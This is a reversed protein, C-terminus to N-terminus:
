IKSSKKKDAINTPLETPQVKQLKLLRAIYNQVWHVSGDLCMKGHIKSTAIIETDKCHPTPPFIEVKQFPGMRRAELKICQCRPEFRLSGETVALLALLGVVLCISMRISM